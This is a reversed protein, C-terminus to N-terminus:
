VGGPAAARVVAVAGAPRGEGDTSPETRVSVALLQGDRAVLRVPRYGGGAPQTGMLSHRFGELDDAAVLDGLAAGGISDPGYGLMTLLPRNAFVTRLGADLIWVGEGQLDAAQRFRAASTQLDEERRVRDSKDSSIVLAAPRGEYEIPVSVSEALVVAGDPRRIRLLLPPNPNGNQVSAMRRRIVDHQAPDIATLAEVGRVDGPKAYGLLRAGFPNAFVYRGDQVVLVSLPASEVLSRYRAESEELRRTRDEVLEVLGERYRRNVEELREHDDEQRKWSLADAVAPLLAEKRLPKALYKRAGIEVAVAASELSPQGTMIIIAMRPAAARAELFYRRSEMGPLVYDSILVDPAGERIRELAARPTEATEVEYGAGKLFASTTVCISREDDVVLVRNM